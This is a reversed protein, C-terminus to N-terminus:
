ADNFAAGGGGAVDGEGTKVVGVLVGKTDGRAVGVPADGVDCFQVPEGSLPSLQSSIL